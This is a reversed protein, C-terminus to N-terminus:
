ERESLTRVVFELTRQVHAQGLIGRAYTSNEGRDYKRLYEADILPSIEQLDPPVRGTVDARLGECELFGHAGDLFTSYWSRESLGWSRAFLRNGIAVVWIQLPAERAAGASVGTLSNRNVATIFEAPFM